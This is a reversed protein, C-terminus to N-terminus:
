SGASENGLGLTLVQLAESKLRQVDRAGERAVVLMAHALRTRMEDHRGPYHQAIDCWAEDFAVFIVRLTEPEFTAHELLNRAKM